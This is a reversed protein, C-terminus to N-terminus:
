IKRIWLENINHDSGKKAILSARNRTPLINEELNKLNCDKTGILNVDHKTKINLFASGVMGTGGTVLINM